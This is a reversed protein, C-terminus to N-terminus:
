EIKNSKTKRSKFLNRHIHPCNSDSQIANEMVTYSIHVAASRKKQLEGGRTREARTSSGDHEQCVTGEREGERQLSDPTTAKSERLVRRMKTPRFNDEEIASM